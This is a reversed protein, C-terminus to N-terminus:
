LWINVSRHVQLVESRICMFDNKVVPYILWSSVTLAKKALNFRTLKFYASQQMSEHYDVKPHLVDRFLWFKSCTKVAIM